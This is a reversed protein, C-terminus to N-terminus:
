EAQSAPRPASALSTALDKVVQMSTEGVMPAAGHRVIKIGNYEAPNHSATVMLGLDLNHEGAWYYVEETGALGLHMVDVGNQILAQTLADVLMPGHSRVDWGIVCSKPELLKVLAWVIREAIAPNLQDPVVGRVDYAKICEFTMGDTM